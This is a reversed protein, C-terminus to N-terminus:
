TQHSSQHTCLYQRIIAETLKQNQDGQLDFQGEKLAKGVALTSVASMLSWSIDDFWFVPWGPMSTLGAIQDNSQTSYILLILQVSHGRGINIQELMSRYRRDTALTVWSETKKALFLSSRVVVVNAKMNKKEKSETRRPENVPKTRKRRGKRAAEEEFL